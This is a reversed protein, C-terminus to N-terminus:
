KSEVKNLKNTLGGYMSIITGLFQFQHSKISRDYNHQDERNSIEM